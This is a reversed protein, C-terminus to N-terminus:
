VEGRTRRAWIQADAFRKWFKWPCWWPKHRLLHCEIDHLAASYGSQWAEEADAYGPDIM